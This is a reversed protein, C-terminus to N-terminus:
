VNMQIVNTNNNHNDSYDNHTVSYDDEITCNTTTTNVWMYNTFDQDPVFPPISAMILFQLWHPQEHHFTFNSTTFNCDWVTLSFVNLSRFMNTLTSLPTNSPSFNMDITYMYTLRPSLVSLSNDKTVSIDVHPTLPMPVTSNHLM